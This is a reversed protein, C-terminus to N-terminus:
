VRRPTLLSNSCFTHASSFQSELLYGRTELHLTGPNAVYPPTVPSKEGQRKIDDPLDVMKPLPLSSRRWLRRDTPATSQSDHSGNCPKWTNMGENTSCASLQESNEENDKGTPFLCLSLKDGRGTADPDDTDGIIGSDFSKSRMNDQRAKPTERSRRLSNLLSEMEEKENDAFIDEEIEDYDEFVGEDVRDSDDIELLSDGVSKPSPSAQASLSQSHSSVQQLFSLQRLGATLGISFGLAKWDASELAPLQWAYVVHEEKMRQLIALLRNEDDMGIAVAAERVKTEALTTNLSLHSLPDKVPSLETVSLLENNPM